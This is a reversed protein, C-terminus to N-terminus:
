FIVGEAWNCIFWITSCVTGIYATLGTLTGTNSEPALVVVTFLVPLSVPCFFVCLVVYFANEM